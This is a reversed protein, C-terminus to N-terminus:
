FQYIKVLMEYYVLSFYLVKIKLRKVTPYYYVVM